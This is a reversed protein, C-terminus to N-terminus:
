LTFTIPKKNTETNNSSLIEITKYQNTSNKHQNTNNRYLKSYIRYQKQATETNNKHQTQITLASCWAAFTISGFGIFTKAFLRISIQKQKHQKQITKKCKYQNKKTNNINIQITKYQKQTTLASCWATFTISGFCIFTKAFLRISILEQFVGYKSLIQSCQNEVSEEYKWLKGSSKNKDPDRRM